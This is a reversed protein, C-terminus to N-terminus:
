RRKLELADLLAAVKRADNADAGVTVAFEALPHQVLVSKLEVPRADPRIWIIVQGPDASPPLKVDAGRLAVRARAPLPEKCDFSPAILVKRGGVAAFAKMAAADCPAQSWWLFSPRSSQIKKWTADDGAGAVEVALPRGGIRYVGAGGLETADLWVGAAPAGEFRHQQVDTVPPHFRVFAEDSRRLNELTSDRLMNSRTDLWLTVNGRVLKRLADPDLEESAFVHLKLGPLAIQAPGANANRDPLKPASFGADSEGILERAPAYQLKPPVDKRPGFLDTGADRPNARPIGTDSHARDVTAIGGDSRGRGPATREHRHGASPQCSFGVRNTGLDADAPQNKWGVGQASLVLAIVLWSM